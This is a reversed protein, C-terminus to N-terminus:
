AFTYVSTSRYTEGPRLLTGPWEPHHPSDPSHQPELCIADGRRYAEGGHGRLTGDLFNGSYFQLGPETSRLTMARGSAPDELHAALRLAGPTEDDLIWHHDYGGM